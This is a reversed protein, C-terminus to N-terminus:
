PCEVIATFPPTVIRGDGLGDNERPIPTELVHSLQFVTLYFMISINSKPMSQETGNKSAEKTLFAAFSIKGVSSHQMRM